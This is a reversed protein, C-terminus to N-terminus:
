EIKDPDYVVGSLKQGADELAIGGILAIVVPQWAAILFLVDNGIEPAAYKTVFYTVSSVVVDVITIWFKRSKFIM